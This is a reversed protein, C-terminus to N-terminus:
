GASLGLPRLHVAGGAAAANAHGRRRRAHRDADRLVHGARRCGRRGDHRVLEAAGGHPRRAGRARRRARRLRARLRADLARDLRHRRRRQGVRPRAALPLRRPLLAHLLHPALPDELRRVRRRLAQAAGLRPPWDAPLLRRRVHLHRLAHLVHDCLRLPHRQQRPVCAAHRRLDRRGLLLLLRRRRGPGGFHRRRQRAAFQLLGRRKHARLAAHANRHDLALRLEDARGGM